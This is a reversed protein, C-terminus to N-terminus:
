RHEQLRKGWERLQGEQPPLAVEVGWGRLQTVPTDMCMEGTRGERIYKLMRGLIREAKGMEVM